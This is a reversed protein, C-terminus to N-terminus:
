IVGSLVELIPLEHQPQSFMVEINNDKFKNLDLYTRGSPGSLYKTAGYEKCIEVLRDTSRCESDFDRAIRTDINMMEAIRVIIRFNTEYLNEDICDDFRSLIEKYEPLCSKIKEWDKDAKVYEKKIIQKLGRHVSMTHWRDNMKFRNQFGNKEYQCHGMVVFIDAKQVKEFFPYWPM